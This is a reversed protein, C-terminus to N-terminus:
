TCSPSMARPTSSWWRHHSQAPPPPWARPWRRTAQRERCARRWAPDSPQRPTPPVRPRARPSRGRRRLYRREYRAQPGFALRNALHCAEYSRDAGAGLAERDPDLEHISASGASVPAARDVHGRETREHDGTGSGHDALVAPPRCRRERARGVHQFGQTDDYVETGVPHPPTDVLRPDAETERRAKMRRHPECRRNAALEADRRHEVEDPREDIRGAVRWSTPTESGAM